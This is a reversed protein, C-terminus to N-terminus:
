LAAEEPLEAKWIDGYRVIMGDGNLELDATFAGGRSEYRFVNEATRCYKQELPELLFSPFRLWAARVTAEEGVALNLRRIPLLNTSPSFNLDIDVCGGVGPVAAGHLRWPGTDVRVDVETTGVVGRVWASLTRWKDDCAVEYALSCPMGEYDFVATGALSSRRARSYEHGPVDLRRWLIATKM